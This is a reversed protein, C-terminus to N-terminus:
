VEVVFNIVNKMMKFPNIKKMTGLSIMDKKGKKRERRM